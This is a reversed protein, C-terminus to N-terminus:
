KLIENEVYADVESRPPEYESIGAIESGPFPSVSKRPIRFRQIFVRMVKQIDNLVETEVHTTDRTM